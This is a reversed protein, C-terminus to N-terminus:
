VVSKRDKSLIAALKELGVPGAGILVTRITNLKIFVPFLQNGEM